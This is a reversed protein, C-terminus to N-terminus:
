LGLTRVRKILHSGGGSGTGRITRAVIALGILFLLIASAGYGKM